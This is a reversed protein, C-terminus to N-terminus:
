GLLFDTMISDYLQQSIENVQELLLSSVKEDTISGCAGWCNLEHGLELELKQKLDFPTAILCMQAFLIPLLNTNKRESLCKNKIRGLLCITQMLDDIYFQITQIISKLAQSALSCIEAETKHLYIYLLARMLSQCHNSSVTNNKTKIIKLRLNEYATMASQERRLYVKKRESLEGRVNKLLNELNELYELCAEPPTIQWFSNIFNQIKTRLQFRLRQANVQLRLQCPMYGDRAENGFYWQAIKKNIYTLKDELNNDRANDRALISSFKDIRLKLEELLDCNESSGRVLFKILNDSSDENIGLLNAVEEESPLELEENKSWCNIIEAALLNNWNNLIRM